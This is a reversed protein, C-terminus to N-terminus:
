DCGVRGIALIHIRCRALGLAGLVARHEQADHIALTGANHESGGLGDHVDLKVWREGRAGVGIGLRDVSERGDRGGDPQPRVVGELM